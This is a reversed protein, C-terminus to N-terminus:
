LLKREKMINHIYEAWIKSGQPNPHDSDPDIGDREVMYQWMGGYESIKNRYKNWSLNHIKSPYFVFRELDVMDWLFKLEPFKHFIPIVSQGSVLDWGTCFVYDINHSKCFNQVFLISNLTKLWGGQHTYYYKYWRNLYEQKFRPQHSNKELKKNRLVHAGSCVWGISKDKPKEYSIGLYKPKLDEELGNITPIEDSVFLDSREFGTWQVGVFIDSSKINPNKVLENLKYLLNLKIFENGAGGGAMNHIEHVGLLPGLFELWQTNQDLKAKYDYTGRESFSCGSGVLYKYKKV